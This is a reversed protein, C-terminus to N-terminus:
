ASQNSAVDALLESAAAMIQSLVALMEPLSYGNAYAAAFGVFGLLGITRSVTRRAAFFLVIGGLLEVPGALGNASLAQWLSNVGEFESALSGVGVSPSSMHTVGLFSLLGACAGQGIDKVKGIVGAMPGGFGLGDGGFRDGLSPASEYVAKKAGFINAM